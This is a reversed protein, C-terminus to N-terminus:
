FVSFLTLSLTRMGSSAAQMKKEMSKLAQTIAPVRQAFARWQDPTTYLHGKKSPWAKKNEDFWFKDLGVFPKGNITCVKASMMLKPDRFFEINNSEKIVITRAQQSSAGTNARNAM